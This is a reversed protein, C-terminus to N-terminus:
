FNDHSFFMISSSNWEPQYTSCGIQSVLVIKVENLTMNECNFIDCHM